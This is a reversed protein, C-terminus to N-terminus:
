SSFLITEFNRFLIVFLNVIFFFFLFVRRCERKSTRWRLNNIYICIFIRAEEIGSKLFFISGISSYIFNITVCCANIWMTIEAFTFGM